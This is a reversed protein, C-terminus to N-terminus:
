HSGRGLIFFATFCSRLKTRFSWFIQVRMMLVEVCVEVGCHSAALALQGSERPARAGIFMPLNGNTAANSPASEDQQGAESFLLNVGTRHHFTMYLNAGSFKLCDRVGGGGEGGLLAPFSDKCETVPNSAPM